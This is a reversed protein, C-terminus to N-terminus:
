KEQATALKAEAESIVHLAHDYAEESEGAENWLKTGRDLQQQARNVDIEQPKLADNALITVRDPLVEVFGWSVNYIQEPQMDGGKAGHLRVDGAGLEALLPAHGYLVEMYGNKAPLEVADACAEFLIREPTVLRVRLENSTDAM